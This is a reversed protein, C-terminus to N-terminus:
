QNASIMVRHRDHREALEKWLRASEPDPDVRESGEDGRTRHLAIGFAFAALRAAGSASVSAGLSPIAVPHGTADALVRRFLPSSAGVGAFQLEAPTIGAEALVQMCRRSELAIGELLARALDSQTHGLTLGFISGRLSPDWLAGQEGSGMYPLFSVGGAGHPSSEAIELLAPVGGALSLTEALWQMASGTSLLDM